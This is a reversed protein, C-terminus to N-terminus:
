DGHKTKTLNSGMQSNNKLSARPNNQLKRKVKPFLSSILLIPAINPTRCWPTPVGQQLSPGRWPMAHGCRPTASFLIKGDEPEGRRLWQECCPFNSHKPKTENNQQESSKDIPSILVMYTYLLTWVHNYPLPFLSILGYRTAEALEIHSFKIDKHYSLLNRFM